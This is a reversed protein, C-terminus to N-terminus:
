QESEANRKDAANLALQFIDLQSPDASKMVERKKIYTKAFTVRDGNFVILPNIFYEFDYNSRAIIGAEMLASLGTFIEKTSKYGTYQLCADMRLIFSDHKPKLMTLIFGFVRIAPKSLEWFAAFQSLYIKAFREEDVEIFRMFASHGQVEGNDAVIMQIEGAEKPRVVQTRKVIRIDEIAKEVFPNDKFKKHDTVKKYAM